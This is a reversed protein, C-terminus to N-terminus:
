GLGCFCVLGGVGWCVHLAFVVAELEMGRLREPWCHKRLSMPIFPEDRGPGICCYRVRECCCFASLYWAVCVAGERDAKERSDVM